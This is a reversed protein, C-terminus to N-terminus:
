PPSFLMMCVHHSKQSQSSAIGYLYPKETWKFLVRSAAVCAHSLHNVALSYLAAAFIRLVHLRSVALSACILLSPCRSWSSGQMKVIILLWTKVKTLLNIWVLPSLNSYLSWIWSKECSVQGLTCSFRCHLCVSQMCNFSILGTLFRVWSVLVTLVRHVGSRFLWVSEM